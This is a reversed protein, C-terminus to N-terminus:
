PLKHPERGSQFVIFKNPLLLMWEVIVEVKFLGVTYTFQITKLPELQYNLTKLM